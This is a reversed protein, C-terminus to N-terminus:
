KGLAKPFQINLALGGLPSHSAEISGQHAFVIKQAISLGLGSGGQTRNRSEDARFLPDFLKPLQEDSLGPASDHWALHIKNDHQALEIEIQGGADTYRLSNQLLNDLLQGLRQTDGKISYDTLEANIKLSIRQESRLADVAKCREEVLSLLNLSDMQYELAGVDSLSLVHLDNILHSLRLTEAYLSNIAQMDLPRVGDEIAEVESQLIAVPTRLEHSLEAIWERRATRSHELTHALQNIDRSLDGLEDQRDSDIRHNFNGQSIRSVADSLQLVPRVFRSSLLAALLASLAVMILSAIAFSRKQQNAFVNDLQRPLKSSAKYGVYGVVTDASTIPLWQTSRNPDLRGLLVQKEADVLLLRRMRDPPPLGRKPGKAGNDRRPPKDDPIAGGPPSAQRSALDRPGSRSDRNSDSILRPWLSPNTTLWDWNSAEAYGDELRILLPQLSEIESDNIYNLFGRNFSWSNFAYLTAILVGSSVLLTMFIQYKLRM